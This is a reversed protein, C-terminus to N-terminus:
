SIRGKQFDLILLKAASDIDPEAGKLLKKRVIAIACLLEQPDQCDQINYFKAIKGPSTKQSECIINKAVLFPNKLKQADIAAYPGLEQENIKGATVGPADVLRSNKDFTLWQIGRTIGSRFGTKAINRGLLSNILSSKGVNPIGFIFIDIPPEKSKLKQSIAQKICDKLERIGNKTKSSVYFTPTKPQIKPAPTKELLDSKTAVIFLKDLFKTELQPIRTKQPSRADVVEIAWACKQLHRRMAEYHRKNFNDTKM